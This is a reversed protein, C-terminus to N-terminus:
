GHCLQHCERLRLLLRSCRSLEHAGSADAGAFYMKVNLVKPGIEHLLYDSLVKKATTVFFTLEAEIEIINTASGEKKEEEDSCVV